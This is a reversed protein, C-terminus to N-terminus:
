NITTDTGPMLQRYVKLVQQRTEELTGDNNIVFDAFKIKEDVPIQTKIRNRADNEEVGRAILRKLQVESSAYVVIIKDALKRAIEPGLELLLPIDKIIM